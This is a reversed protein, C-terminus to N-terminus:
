FEPLEETDIEGNRVASARNQRYLSRVAAYYDISTRELEETADITRSRADILDLTGRSISVALKGDYTIYFHPDLFIDVGTGLLDRPNTPGLLPIVLYPGEKVGWVALTQGFDEDHGVINFESQAIDRLGGLGFISNILFRGLTQGARKMEGQLVDNALIVPTDANNLGNRIAAQSWEPMHDHYTRAVPTVVHKDLKMTFAFMKRNFPEYPDNAEPDAERKSACGSLGIVLAATLLTIRASSGMIRETRRM